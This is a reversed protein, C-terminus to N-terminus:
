DPYKWTGMTDRHFARYKNLFALIDKNLINGIIKKGRLKSCFYEIYRCSNPIFSEIKDELLQKEERAARLETRLESEIKEASLSLASFEFSEKERSYGLEWKKNLIIQDSAITYPNDVLEKGELMSEHGLKEAEELQENYIFLEGLHPCQDGTTEIDLGCVGCKIHIFFCNKGEDVGGNVKISDQNCKHCRM